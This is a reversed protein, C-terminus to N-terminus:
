KPTGNRFLLMVFILIVLIFLIAFLIITLIVYPFVRSMIYSVLPDLIMIHMWEKTDPQQLGHAITEIWKHVWKRNNKMNNKIDDGQNSVNKEDKM